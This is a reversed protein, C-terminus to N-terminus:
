VSGSVSVTDNREQPPSLNAASVKPPGAGAQAARGSQANQAALDGQHL